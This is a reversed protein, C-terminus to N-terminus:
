GVSLIVTANPVGCRRADISIAARMARRANRRCSTFCGSASSLGSVRVSPRTQMLWSRPARMPAGSGKECLASSMQGCSAPCTAAITRTKVDGVDGESSALDPRLTAGAAPSGPRALRVACSTCCRGFRRYPFAESCCCYSPPRPLHPCCPDPALRTIDVGDDPRMRHSARPKETLDAGDIAGLSGSV